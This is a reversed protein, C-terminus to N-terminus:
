SRGMAEASSGAARARDAACEPCLGYLTVQHRTVVFGNPNTGSNDREPATAVPCSTAEVRGCGDCIVHHHHRDGASCRAFLASGGREGVRELWGSGLLVAVARYVTATGTAGEIARVAIALEDVSFAGPMGAATEAIIRRQPTNRGTGYPSPEKTSVAM